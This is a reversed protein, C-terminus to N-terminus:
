LPLDIEEENGWDGVTVDFFGEGGETSISINPIYIYGGRPQISMQDTIDFDSYVTKGSNLTLTLNLGFKRDAADYSSDEYDFGPAGFTSVIAIIYNDVIPCNDFLITVTEDDTHGDHMYVRGAMGAMGGSASNVLEIGETVEFIVLYKYVLPKLSVKLTDATSSMVGEFNGLWAGFLMDPPNVTTEDEHTMNYSARTRTRTSASAEAFTDMGDFVIYETDNNYFLLDQIGEQLYLVGGTSDIHRTSFMGSEHYSVCAIGKGARPILYEYPIFSEEEMGYVASIGYDRMWELEWEPQVYARVNFGHEDHNYCLEKRCGALSLLLATLIVALYLYKRTM